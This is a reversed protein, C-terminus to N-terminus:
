RVSGVKITRMSRRFHKPPQTFSISVLDSLWESATGHVLPDFDYDLHGSFWNIVQM